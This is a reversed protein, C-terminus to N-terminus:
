WTYKNCNEIFSNTYIYWAVDNLCLTYIHMISFCFNETCLVCYVFKVFFQMKKKSKETM